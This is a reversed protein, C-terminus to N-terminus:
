PISVLDPIFINHCPSSSSGSLWLAASLSSLSAFLYVFWLDDQLIFDELSVIGGCDGMRKGDTQRDGGASTARKKQGEGLEREVSRRTLNQQGASYSINSISTARRHNWFNSPSVSGMEGPDLLRPTSSGFAFVASNRDSKRKAEFKADRDINKRLLYERREKEAEEIARKREEVATRRDADRAKMDDIRRRREEDKQERYKQAALAQAKLEELKRQREENQREKVLRLRDEKDKHSAISELEVSLYVSM